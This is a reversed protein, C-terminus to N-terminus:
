GPNFRVDAITQLAATARNGFYHALKGQPHSVFVTAM